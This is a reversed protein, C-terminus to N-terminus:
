STALLERKERWSIRGRREIRNKLGLLQITKELKGNFRDDHAEGAIVLRAESLRQTVQQLVHVLDLVGKNPAIRGSFCAAYKPPPNGLEEENEPELFGSDPMVEPFKWGTQNIEEPQHLIPLLAGIKALSLAPLWLFWNATM